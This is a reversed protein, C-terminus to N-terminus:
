AVEVVSNFSGCSNPARQQCQEDLQWAGNVLFKYEHRGPALSVTTAYLGNGNKKLTIAKPDWNNFSGALFVTNGEAAKVQFKVKRPKNNKEAIRNGVNPQERQKGIGQQKANM